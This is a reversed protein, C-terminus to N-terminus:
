KSFFFIQSVPFLFIQCFINFLKEAKCCELFIYLNTRIPFPLHKVEEFSSFLAIKAYIKCFAFM